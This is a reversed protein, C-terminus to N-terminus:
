QNRVVNKKKCEMEKQPDRRVQSGSGGVQGWGALRGGFPCNGDGRKKNTSSLSSPTNAGGRPLARNLVGPDRRIYVILKSFKGGKGKSNPNGARWGVGDM